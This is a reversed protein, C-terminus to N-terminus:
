RSLTYTAGGNTGGDAPLEASVESFRLQLSNGLETVASVALMAVLTILIATEVM